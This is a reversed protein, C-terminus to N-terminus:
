PESEGKRQTAASLALKWDRESLTWTSERADHELEGNHSIMVALISERGIATIEIVTDGYGENGILRTGVTWGHRKCKDANGESRWSLQRKLELKRQRKM